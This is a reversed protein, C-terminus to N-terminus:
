CADGGGLFVSEIKDDLIRFFEYIGSDFGIHHFLIAPTGTGDLDFIGMFHYSGGYNGREEELTEFKTHIFKLVNGKQVEAVLSLYHLEAHEKNIAYRAVVYSKDNGAKILTFKKNTISDIDKQSIKNQKFVSTAQKSLSSSIDAPIKDTLSYGKKAESIGFAGLYLKENSSTLTKPSATGQIGLFEQCGYKATTEAKFNGVKKANEFVELNKKNQALFNILYVFDGSGDFGYWKGSFSAGLIRLAGKKITDASDGTGVVGILKGKQTESPPFFGLFDNSAYGEINNATKVKKWSYNEEVDALITLKDGANLKAIIKGDVPKERINLVGSQVLAYRVNTKPFEEALISLTTLLLFLINKKMTIVLAM